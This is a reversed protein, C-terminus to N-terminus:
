LCTSPIWSGTGNALESSDATLDSGKLSVAVTEPNRSRQGPFRHSYDLISPLSPM